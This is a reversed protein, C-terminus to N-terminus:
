RRGQPGRAAQVLKNLEFKRTIHPRVDDTQILSKLFPIM